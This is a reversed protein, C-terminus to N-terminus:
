RRRQAGEEGAYYQRVAFIAVLQLRINLGEFAQQKAEEEHRHSRPDVETQKGFVGEQDRGQHDPQHHEFPQHQHGEAEGDADRRTLAPGERQGQGLAPFKGEHQKRERGLVPYQGTVGDWQQGQHHREGHCQSRQQQDEVIPHDLGPEVIAILPIHRLVLLGLQHLVRHDDRAEAAEALYHPAQQVAVAYAGGDELLIGALDLHQSFIAILDEIAVGAPDIQEM